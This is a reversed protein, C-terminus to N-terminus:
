SFSDTEGTGRRIHPRSGHGGDAGKATLVDSLTVLRNNNLSGSSQSREQKFIFGPIPQVGAQTDGFSVVGVHKKTGDLLVIEDGPHRGRKGKFVEMRKYVPVEARSEIIPIIGFVGACLIEVIRKVGAALDLHITVIGIDEDGVRKGM